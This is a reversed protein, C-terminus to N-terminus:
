SKTNTARGNKVEEFAERIRLIYGIVLKQQEISEDKNMERPKNYREMDNSRSLLGRKDEKRKSKQMDKPLGEKSIKDISKTLGEIQNYARIVSNNIM